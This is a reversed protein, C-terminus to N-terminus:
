QLLRLCHKCNIHSRKNQKMKQYEFATFDRGCMSMHAVRSAAHRKRM